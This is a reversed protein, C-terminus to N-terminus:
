KIGRRCMYEYCTTICVRFHMYQDEAILIQTSGLLLCVISERNFYDDPRTKTLLHAIYVPKNFM